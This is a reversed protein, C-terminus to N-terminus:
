TNRQDHYHFQGALRWWVFVGGDILRIHSDNADCLRAANEAVVDLVPQLDTPSGAIVRLIESTATQQELADTLERKQAVCKKKLSSYSEKLSFAPRNAKSKRSRTKQFHIECILFGSQFGM